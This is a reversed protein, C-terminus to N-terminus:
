EGDVENSGNYFREMVLENNEICLRGKEDRKYMEGNWTICVGKKGVNGHFYFNLLTASIEKGDLFVEATKGDSEIRIKPNDM